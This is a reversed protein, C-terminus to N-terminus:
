GKTGLSLAGVDHECYEFVLFVSGAQRACLQVSYPDDSNKFKVLMTEMTEMVEMAEMVEMVEMAEMAEMAELSGAQWM